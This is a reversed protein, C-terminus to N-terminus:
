KNAARGPNSTSPASAESIYRNLNDRIERQIGKKHEDSIRYHYKEELLNLTEGAIKYVLDEIKM